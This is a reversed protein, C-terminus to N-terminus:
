TSELLALTRKQSVPSTYCNNKDFVGVIKQVM